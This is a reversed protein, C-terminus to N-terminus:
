YVIVNNLAYRTSDITHNDKDVLEGTYQGHKDMKYEYRSFEKYTEPCEIPDIYIGSLSQLWKIGHRVSDPGKKVGVARIGLKVLENITRPDESDAWVIFNHKNRDRIEQALTSNGM